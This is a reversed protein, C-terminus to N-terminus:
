DCDEQSNITRAAYFDVKHHVRGQSYSTRGFSEIRAPGGSGKM